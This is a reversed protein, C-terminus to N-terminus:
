NYSIKYNHRANKRRPCTDLASLVDTTIFLKACRGMKLFPIVRHVRLYDIDGQPLNLLRALGARDLSYGWSTNGRPDPKKYAALIRKIKTVAAEGPQKIGTRAAERIRAALGPDLELHRLRHHSCCLWTVALPQSYDEHHAVVTAKRGCIQCPQQILVDSKKAKAVLMRALVRQEKPWQDSWRPQNALM